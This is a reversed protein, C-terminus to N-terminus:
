ANGLVNTYATEIKKSMSQLPIMVGQHIIGPLRDRNLGLWEVPPTAEGMDKLQPTEIVPTEIAIYKYMNNLEVDKLKMEIDNSDPLKPPTYYVYQSGTAATTASSFATSAAQVASKRAGFARVHNNWMERIFNISGLNWGVDVRGEFLSRFIFEVDMTMVPQWTKMNVHVAPIKIITGGKAERTVQVFEEVLIDNFDTQRHVRKITSLAILLQGLMLELNSFLKSEETNISFRAFANTAELRFVETDAMTSPFVNIVVSSISVDIEASLRTSEVVSEAVVDNDAAGHKHEAAPKFRESDRLVAQYAAIREQTLREIANYISLITSPAFVTLYVNLYEGAGKCVLRDSVDASPRQNFMTFQIRSMSALLFMRYDFLFKANFKRVGISAQVLPVGFKGDDRAEWRIASRAEIATAELHGGLRGTATLITSCVGFTLNQEWDSSKRSALWVKDIQGAVKGLSQGLDLNAKVDAIEFSINWPFAHTSSVRRYRQVLIDFNEDATKRRKMVPMSSLIENPSWIDQFLLLDHIQKVNLDLFVEDVKGAISLGTERSRKSESVAAFGVQKISLSGSLERSYIHQLSAKFNSISVAASFYKPGSPKKFTTMTIYLDDYAATAEIRAIPNCSMTFEQRAIRVGIHLEVTSLIDVPSGNKVDKTPRVTKPARRDPREQTLYERKPERIEHQFSKVMEMVIPMLCPYLTNVSSEVFLEATISPPKGEILVYDSKLRIGPVHLTAVVATKATDPRLDGSSDFGIPKELTSNASRAMSNDAYKEKTNGILEITAGNFDARLNASTFFSAFAQSPNETQSGSPEAKPPASQHKAKYVTYRESIATSTRSFSSAIAHFIRVSSPLVKIKLETGLLHLGLVRHNDIYNLSVVSSIEDMFATNRTMSQPGVPENNFYASTHADMYFSRVSAKITGKGKSIISFTETGVVFSVSDFSGGDNTIWVFRSNNIQIKVSVKFISDLASIKPRSEDDANSSDELAADEKHKNLNLFEEPIEFNAIREEVKSVIQVSSTLSHPSAFFRMYESVVSVHTDTEDQGSGTRYEMGVRMEFLRFAGNKLLSQQVDIAILPFAAAFAFCLPEDKTYFVPVLDQSEAEMKINEISLILQADSSAAKMIFSELFVAGKFEITLDPAKTPRLETVEPKVVAEDGSTCVTRVINSIKSICDRAIKAESRITDGALAIALDPVSFANLCMTEVIIRTEVLTHHDSCRETRVLASVKPFQVSTITSERHSKTRRCFEHVQQGAELALIDVHAIPSRFYIEFGAGTVRYILSPLIDFSFRYKTLEVFFDVKELSELSLGLLSTQESGNDQAPEGTSQSGCIDGLKLMKRVKELEYVLIKEVVKCVEISNMPLEVLLDEISMTFNKKAEMFNVLSDTSGNVTQKQIGLVAIRRDGLDPSIIDVELSALRMVVSSYVHPNAINAVVSTDFGHTSAQLVIHRSNMTTLISRVSIVVHVMSLRAENAKEACSVVVAEPKPPEAEARSDVFEQIIECLDFSTWSFNTVIDDCGFSGTIKKLPERTSRLSYAREGISDRSFDNNAVEDNEAVFSFSLYSITAYDEQEQGGSIHATITEVDILFHHSSPEPTEIRSKGDFVRAFLYSKKLDFLEWSRWNSFIRMVQERSDPPAVFKSTPSIDADIQSYIDPPISRIIHRIRSMLKWSDNVRIHAKSSRLIYAPRTLFPPDHAIRYDNSAIATLYIFNQLRKSTREAIQTSSTIFREIPRYFDDYSDLLWKLHKSAIVSGLYKVRLSLVQKAASQNWFELQEVKMEIPNAFLSYDKPKKPETTDVGKVVALHFLFFNCYISIARDVRGLQATTGDSKVGKDVIRLVVSVNKAEMELHDKPMFQPPDLANHRLVNNIEGYSVHLGPIVAQVTVVKSLPNLAAQLRELVDIQLSNILNNLNTWSMADQIEVIKELISPVVFGTIGGRFEVVLNDYSTNSDINPHYNLADSTSPADSNEYRNTDFARRLDEFDKFAVIAALPALFSGSLKLNIECSSQQFSLDMPDISSRSQVSPKSLDHHIVSSTSKNSLSSSSSNSHWQSHDLNFALAKPMTPLPLTPNLPKHIGFSPGYVTDGDNSLKEDFDDFYGPHELYTSRGFPADHSKLHLQQMDRLYGSNKEQTFDTIYISTRLYAHMKLKSTSSADPLMDVCTETHIRDVALFSCEAIKLSIRASYRDNAHDNFTLAIPDLLVKLTSSETHILIRVSPVKLRLMTVDYIIPEPVILSNERDAFTFVFSSAASALSDLLLPSGEMFILGLDFDWNCVYTPETPPLGFMRHGYVHIGDIFIKAGDNSIDEKTMTLIKSDDFSECISGYIPSIDTQLDMYYNTFRLDVDFMDLDLRLYTGADYINCPCILFGMDIHVGMIVDIDTETKVYDPVITNNNTNTNTNTTSYATKPRPIATGSNEDGTPKNKSFEDLTRFQMNEGIYNEKFKLVYRILFGYAILSVSHASCDITLTDVNLSHGTSVVYSYKGDLVVGCFKGMEKCIMFSELTNWPPAHLVLDVLESSLRFSITNHIPRIQDLPITVEANVQSGKLALFTNDEFDSPNNIINSDNVNLYFAVNNFVLNALIRQPTFSAYAVAPGSSFDAVMDSFITIHERLVFAQGDFSENNITWTHLGNWKLPNSLDARIRHSDAIFLIDHNVSSRVELQSLDVSLMNRWGRETPVIASSYSVTSFGSMKLELWGFSRQPPDINAMEAERVTERYKNDKSPERIPIRFITSEDLEIFVKFETAERLENPRPKPRPRSDKYLAPFFVNQLIMRQRDAWPGYQITSRILTIDAGWEPAFDEKGPHQNYMPEGSSASRTITSPVLGVDDYYFKVKAEECDVVSSCKGYESHTDLENELDLDDSDIYRSLGRWGESDVSYQNSSNTDSQHKFPWKLRPLLSLINFLDLLSKWISQGRTKTLNVGKAVHYETASAKYDMNAKIQITPKVLRFDYVMKYRDLHSRSKQADLSGAASTFHGIMVTATNVNGIVMGGTNCTLDVPFFRLFAPLQNTLKQLAPATSGSTQVRPVQAKEDMTAPRECPESPGSVSTGSNNQGKKEYFGTSYTGSTGSAFSAHVGGEDDTRRPMQYQRLVEDYAGSRNYVFWELGELHLMFRAPLANNKLRSNEDVFFDSKRTRNLWYRWTFHGQVVFISENSGIYRIDKFFLRGALPSFQMSRVDFFVRYKHWTYWRLVLSFVTGIIRNFYFLFFIAAIGTVVLEVLFVWSFVRISSNQLSVSEFESSSDM